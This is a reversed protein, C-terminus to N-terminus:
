NKGAMEGKNELTSSISMLDVLINGSEILVPDEQAKKDEREEKNEEIEDLDKAPPIGKAKRRTNELGLRTEQAKDQEQERKEKNLSIRTKDRLTSLYKTMAQLYVYDADDRIRSNHLDRLQPLLPSLNMYTQHPVGSITDWALAEELSSEGIKEKDYLSPYLIDPTIGKHQTSAGSVRYFKASTMKLQGRELSVLTQVTGKGFTDEGIIIGRGYDQIAGAFIESASASLRNVVVALPGTYFIRPDRDYLKDVKENAHRIQVVPGHNIFLGTLTEAEQLSGGGNDRLDIIIGDANEEILGALLRRVDRTTSKYNPDGERMAQIDLYFTPITIVGLKYIAEDRKVEILESKAAQEELQVTSRTILIVKTQHDDIADAPIIKLRVISDKPGRILDVVDDLRWGVVDVIEGDADQGVGIIRDDPKLDGAKDAPGAPILRVVKTFENETTLMAGIGELSLSMNINFNESSRPSFYQTHPDFTKAFSNMYQQFVDESKAQQARSLQNRYRKLLLDKVEDMPKDDLVLNLIDSKLGKEWLDKQESAGAPWPLDERDTELTEDLNFNIDEIGGELRNILYILREIFRLQYRNYIKFAPGLEGKRLDDDLQSRYAEFEKIDSSLFFTRFPDLDSLYKELLLSSLEDNIEVKRYHDKKLYRFIEKETKNHEPLPLIQQYYQQASMARESACASGLFITLCIILALSARTLTNKIMLKHEIKDTIPAKYCPKDSFVITTEDIFEAAALHQPIGCSKGALVAAPAL